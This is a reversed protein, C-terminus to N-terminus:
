RRARSARSVSGSTADGGQSRPVSLLSREHLRSRQYTDIFNFGAATMEILVEGPGPRPEPLQVTELVDPGGTRQVRVARM